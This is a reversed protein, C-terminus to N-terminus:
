VGPGLVVQLLDLVSGGAASYIASLAVRYICDVVTAWFRYKEQTYDPDVM